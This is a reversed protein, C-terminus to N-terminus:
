DGSGLGPDGAAETVETVETVEGRVLLVKSVRARALTVLELHSAIYKQYINVPPAWAVM